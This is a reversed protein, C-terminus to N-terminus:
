LIREIDFPDWFDTGSGVPPETPPSGGDAPIWTELDMADVFALVLNFSLSRAPCLHATYPKGELPLATDAWNLTRERYYEVDGRMRFSHADEGWHSLDYGTYGVVSHYRVGNEEFPVGLVPPNLRVTEFVVSALDNRNSWDINEGDLDNLYAGVVGETVGAVSPVAAFGLADFLAEAALTITSPELQYEEMRLLLAAEYKATYQGRNERFPSPDSFFPIAPAVAAQVMGRYFDYLEFSEDDTLEIGMAILHLQQVYFAGADRGLSLRNRGSLFVTAADFISQYSWNTGEDTWTDLGTLGSGLAIDLFGRIKEHDVTPMGLSIGCYGDSYPTPAGRDCPFVHDGLRFMGLNNRRVAVGADLKEVMAPLLAAVDTPSIAAEICSTLFSVTGENGNRQGEFVDIYTRDFAYQTGILLYFPNYRWGCASPFIAAFFRIVPEFLFDLFATAPLPM